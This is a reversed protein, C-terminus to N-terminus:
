RALWEGDVALLRHLADDVLRDCLKAPEVYQDVIGTDDAAGVGGLDFPSNSVLREQEMESM